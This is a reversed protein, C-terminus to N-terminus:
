IFLFNSAFNIFGCYFICLSGQGFWMTVEDLGLRIPRTPEPELPNLSTKIFESANVYNFLMSWQNRVISIESAM